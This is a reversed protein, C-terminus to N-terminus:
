PGTEITRCYKPTLDPLIGLQAASLPISACDAVLAKGSRRRSDRKPLVGVFAAGILAAGTM